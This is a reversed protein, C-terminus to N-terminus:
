IQGYQEGQPIKLVKKGLVFSFAYLATVCVLVLGLTLYFRDIGIAEIVFGGFANGFIGACSAASVVITQATAKLGEPALSYIYNAGGAILLGNALGSFTTVMIVQILNNSVLGQLLSETSFLLGAGIVLKYLPFRRRLTAVLLLMPIELLGRYGTVFGVQSNSAGVSQVLYPLFAYNCMLALNMGLFFILYAVYYYNKFLVSVKLKSKERSRGRDSDKVTLCLLFTIILLAPSLFFTLGVGTKPLIFSLSVGALAFSFSGFARIAGFNLRKEASSRVLWNDLLAGTPNRFFFCIPATVVLLPLAGLTAEGVIPILPFLAVTGIICIAVVRKISGIKDSVIGWSTTAVIGVASIISNVIGVRSTSYGIDQMFVTFYNGTSVAMWFFFQLAASKLFVGGVDDSFKDKVNNILRM